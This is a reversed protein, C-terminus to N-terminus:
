SQTGGRAHTTPDDVPRGEVHATVIAASLSLDRLADEGSTRPARGETIAAHFEVLERRFAEDYGEVHITESSASSGAAGDEFTLLTSASRLFPSPFELVARRVVGDFEWTQRYRAMGPLDVWSAVCEVNGFALVVTIGSERIRAFEVRDPDGLLGRVANLEHIMSDLIWDRYVRAVEPDVPGLAARVRAADDAQLQALTDAPIDSAMRLPYHSVYGDLPSEQTTLRSHRLTGLRSFEGALREYAPDYRKMYGVMLVRDTARAREVMSRGEAVSLAMPKETFVHLGADVAAEAVPAHSGAILVMVADLPWTLLERWDTTRRVVGYMGAVAELRGPSLDCVGGIEFQDTLERLYPLHMVQAVLGCGIVGVRIRDAM